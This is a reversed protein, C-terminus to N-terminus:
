LFGEYSITFNLNMTTKRGYLGYPSPSGLNNQTWLSQVSVSLRPQKADMSVTRLRLASTTKRGYLGYPSPSGLVAVEVKM